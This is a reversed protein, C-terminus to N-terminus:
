TGLLEHIKAAIDPSAMITEGVLIARAGANMVFTVDERTKLGSESVLVHTDGVCEALRATTRIDTKQVTLDRNNIGILLNNPLPTGFANLVQILLDPQFAEVLATMGLEACLSTLELIASASHIESILLVADAGAARAEWVQYPELIFDKRLVPLSCSNKVEAIYELRGDFHKEDTLVSIASAGAEEYIRAIESPCFDKRILGASPSKRKIEAILNIKAPSEKTVAGYFDLPPPMKQAQQILEELPTRLKAADLEIRKDAVIQDLINGM